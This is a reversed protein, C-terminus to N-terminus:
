LNIRLIKMKRRIERNKLKLLLLYRRRMSHYNITVYETVQLATEITQHSWIIQFSQRFLSKSLYLSNFNWIMMQLRIIILDNAKGGQGGQLSVEERLSRLSLLCIQAKKPLLEKPNCAKKPLIKLLSCNTKPDRRTSKCSSNRPPNCPISIM